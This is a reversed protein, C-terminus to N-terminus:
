QLVDRRRWREEVRACPVFLERRTEQEIRRCVAEIADVAFIGIDGHQALEAAADPDGIMPHTRLARQYAPRVAVRIADNRPQLRKVGAHRGDILAALSLSRATNIQLRPM